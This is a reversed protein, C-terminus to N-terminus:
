EIIVRQEKPRKKMPRQHPLVLGAKRLENRINKIASQGPTAGCIVVPGAPSRLKWHGGGTSEVTWNAKVALRILQNVDKMASM